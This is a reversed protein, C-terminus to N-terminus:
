HCVTCIWILQSRWFGVSRSRCQKCLCSMDPNMLVLTLINSKTVIVKFILSKPENFTKANKVMLNFDKEIDDLTKYMCNQIKQAIMKLDVPEKIVEYYQPYLQLCFLWEFCSCKKLTTAVIFLCSINTQTSTKRGLWGLPTMDLATLKGLWM